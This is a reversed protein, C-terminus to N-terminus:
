LGRPDEPFPVHCGAGSGTQVVAVDIPLARMADLRAGYDLQFCVDNSLCLWDVLHLKGRLAAFWVGGVPLNVAVTRAAGCPRGHLDYPVFAARDFRM